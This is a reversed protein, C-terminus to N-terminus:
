WPTFFGSHEGDGGTRIMVSTQILHTWGRLLQYACMIWSILCPSCAHSANGPPGSRSVKRNELNMNRYETYKPMKLSSNLTLM